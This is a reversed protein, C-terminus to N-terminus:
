VAVYIISDCSSSNLYSQIPLSFAVAIKPIANTTTFRKKTKSLAPEASESKEGSERERNSKNLIFMINHMKSHLRVNKLGCLDAQTNSEQIIKKKM